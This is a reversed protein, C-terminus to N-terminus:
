STHCDVAEQITTMPDTASEYTSTAIVLISSPQNSDKKILDLVCFRPQVINRVKVRLGSRRHFAFQGITQKTMRQEKLELYDGYLCPAFVKEARHVVFHKVRCCSGFIQISKNFM